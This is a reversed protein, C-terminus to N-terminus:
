RGATGMTCFAVAFSSYQQRAYKHETIAGFYISTALSFMLVM